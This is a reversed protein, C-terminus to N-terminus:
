KSRNVGNYKSSIFKMDGKTKHKKFIKIKEIDSESWYKAANGGVRIFKPLFNQGTSEEYEYWRLLTARTIGLMQSTEGTTYYKENNIIKM